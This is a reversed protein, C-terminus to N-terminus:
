YAWDITNVGLSKANGVVPILDSAVGFVSIIKIASTSKSKIRSSCLKPVTFFRLSLRRSKYSMFLRLNSFLGRGEESAVSYIQCPLILYFQGLNIYFQSPKIGPKSFEARSGNFCEWCQSLGGANRPFKGRNPFGQWFKKSVNGLLPFGAQLKKPCEGLPSAKM